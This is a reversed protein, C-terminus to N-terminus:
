APGGAREEPAERAFYLHAHNACGPNFPAGCAPCAPDPGHGAALYEAVSLMGRCVGCLVRPRAFDERPVPVARHDALEAHCRHCAWYPACCAFRLAVVDRDTAHHACRTQADMGVGRLVPAAGAPSDPATM